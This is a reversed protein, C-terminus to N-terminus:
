GCFCDRLRNLREIANIRGRSNRCSAWDSASLSVILPPASADLL